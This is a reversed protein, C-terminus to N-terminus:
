GTKQPDLEPAREEELHIPCKEVVCKEDSATGLSCVFNDGEKKCANCTNNQETHCFVDDTTDSCVLNVPVISFALSSRPTDLEPGERWDNNDNNWWETTNLTGNLGEGGVALLRIFTEGVPVLSFFARAQIMKEGVGLSRSKLQYVEVTDLVDEWGSIGGAVILIEATAGRGPGRRDQQLSPWRYINQWEGQTQSRMKQRGYGSRTEAAQTISFERVSKLTRGGFILFSLEAIKVACQIDAIPTEQQAEWNTKNEAMFSISSGHVLYVGNGKLSIVGKVGGAEEHMDDLHGREWRGKEKNVKLTLCDTSYPKGEWWGGCVSLGKHTIFAGAGYRKEPLEPIVCDAPFGLKPSNDVSSLPGAKTDGGILLLGPLPDPIM